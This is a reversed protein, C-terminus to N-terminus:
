YKPTGYKRVNSSIESLAKSAEINFRNSKAMDGLSLMGVVRGERVVPLRRVQKSSMIRAAERVDDEPTVTVVNKTMIEGVRTSEPSIEAAVCRLVIDRDTVIGRLNGGESCVPLSGLNHRSLLRAALAASEEPSISVVNPNMFEDVRM